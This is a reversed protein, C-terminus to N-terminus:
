GNVYFRYVLWQAAFFVVYLTLYTMGVWFMVYGFIDLIM